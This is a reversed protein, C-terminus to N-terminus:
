VAALRVALDLLLQDAGPAALLSLGLPAGGVDGAPLTIAPLGALSALCSLRGSGLRAAQLTEASADLEPAPGGAAPLAPVTTRDLLRALHGRLVARVQRAAAPESSSGVPASYQRHLFETSGERYAPSLPWARANKL